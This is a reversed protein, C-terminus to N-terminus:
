VPKNACHIVRTDVLWCFATEPAGTNQVTLLYCGLSGLPTELVGEKTDVLYEVQGLSPRWLLVCVEKEVCIFLPKILVETQGGFFFFFTPHVLSLLPPRLYRVLPPSAAWRGVPLSKIDLFSVSTKAGDREQQARIPVEEGWHPHIRTDDTRGDTRGDM